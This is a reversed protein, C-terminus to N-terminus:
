SIQRSEDLPLMNRAAAYSIIVPQAHGIWDMVRAGEDLNNLMRFTYSVLQGEHWQLQFLGFQAGIAPQYVYRYFRTKDPDLQLRRVIQPIFVASLRGVLGKADARDAMFVATEDGARLVRLDISLPVDERDTVVFPARKVLLDSKM